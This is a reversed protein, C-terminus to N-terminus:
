ARDGCPRDRGYIEGFCYDIYQRAFIALNITLTPLVGITIVLWHIMEM